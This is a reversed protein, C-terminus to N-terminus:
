IRPLLREQETIRQYVSQGIAIAAGHTPPDDLAASRKAIGDDIADVHVVATHVVIRRPPVRGGAM